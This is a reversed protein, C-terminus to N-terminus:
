LCDRVAKIAADEAGIEALLDATNIAEGEESLRFGFQDAADFLPAGITSEQDARAQMPSAAKLAAEQRQRDAVNPDIAAELDHAVSDIQADAGPGHPDDFPTLRAAAGEPEGTGRADAGTAGSGRATGPEAEPGGGGAGAQRAGPGTDFPIDDAYSLDEAEHAARDLVSRSREMVAAELAGMSEEGDVMRVLADDILDADAKHDLWPHEDLLQARLGQDDAERLARSRVEVEAHDFLSHIKEGGNVARELMDLVDSPWPREAFFGAEHLLEGAADISMGKPRLLPGARPVFVKGMGRGSRLAHGEDDRIGGRDALFEIVDSPRKRVPLPPSAREPRLTPLAATVDLDPPPVAERDISATIVDRVGADPVGESDLEARERELATWQDNLQDRWDGGEGGGGRAPAEGGMKRHAWQVVEGASMRDLFPNARIVADGLVARASLNPDANLLRVAGDSGAFHALYLNGADAAHGGRELARRNEVILDNVLVENLAPDTRKAAIAADSEGTKGYRRKYLNIWTSDLFQYPGLASSRLRGDTFRPRANVDGTANEARRIHSKLTEGAAVPVNGSAIATSGRLRPVPSGSPLAAAQAPPEPLEGYIRRMAAGLQDRHAKAGAGDAIYPNTADIATERRTVTVADRETVTMSERGVAAEAVDALAADPIEMGPQWGKPLLPYIRALAAERVPAPIARAGLRAGGGILKVGGHLAPVALGATLVIFGGEEATLTENMQKRTGALEPLIAAALGMNMVTASALRRVTTGGFGGVLFFPAQKPDALDNAIGGAFQATIHSRSATDLDRYRDGKRTLLNQEFEAQTKPLDAFAKPDRERARAVEEWVASAHIVTQGFSGATGGGADYAGFDFLKRRVGRERLADVIPVYAERLRSQQTELREDERTRATAAAGEFWGPAPPTADPRERPLRRAQPPLGM